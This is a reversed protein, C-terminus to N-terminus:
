ELDLAIFFEKPFKFSTSSIEMDGCDWIVQESTCTIYALVM